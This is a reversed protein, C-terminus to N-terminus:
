KALINARLFLFVFLDLLYYFFFMIDLGIDALKFLLKANHKSINLLLQLMAKGMTM